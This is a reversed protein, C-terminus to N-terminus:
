EKVRLIILPMEQVLLPNILCMKEKVGKCGGGGTKCRSFVRRDRCRLMFLPDLNKACFDSLFIKASFFYTETGLVRCEM